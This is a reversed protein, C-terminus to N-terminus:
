PPPQPGMNAPDDGSGRAVAEERIRQLLEDDTLDTVTLELPAKNPGSLETRKPADLGLLNARRNMAALIKELLAPNGTQRETKDTTRVKGDPSEEVTKSVADGCSRRWQEWAEQEVANCKEVEIARLQELDEPPSLRQMARRLSDRPGSEGKWGFALAIEAFTHGKLRMQLVQGERERARIAIPSTKSHRLMAKIGQFNGIGFGRRRRRL